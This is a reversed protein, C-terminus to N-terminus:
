RGLVTRNLIGLRIEHDNYKLIKVKVKHRAGRYEFRSNKHDAFPDENILDMLKLCIGQYDDMNLRNPCPHEHTCAMYPTKIMESNTLMRMEEPAEHNECYITVKDWLNKIVNAM